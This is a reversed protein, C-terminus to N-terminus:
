RRKSRVQGEIWAYTARLGGERPRQPQWGLGPAIQRDDSNHGGLDRNITASNHMVDADHEGAFIYGAGGIDAALQDVDEFPQDMAERCVLPDRLAGVLFDDAAIGGFEPFTLEVARVSCRERKLRKVLHAGTFGGGGM